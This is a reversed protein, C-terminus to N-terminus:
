VKFVSLYTWWNAPKFLLQLEAPEASGLVWIGVGKAHLEPFLKKQAATFQFAIPNKVEIWRTGFIHHACYLDPLGAQFENGHTVVVLWEGSRLAQIIAEQIKAEPGTQRNGKAKFANM